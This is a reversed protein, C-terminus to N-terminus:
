RARQLLLTQIEHLVKDSDSRSGPEGDAGLWELVKAKLDPYRMAMMMFTPWRTDTEEDRLNYSHRPKIGVNFALIKAPERKAIQTIIARGEQEIQARLATANM